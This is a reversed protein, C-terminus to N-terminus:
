INIETGPPLRLIERFLIYLSNKSQIPNIYFSSSTGANGDVGFMQLWNEVADPNSNYEEVSVHTVNTGNGTMEFITIGSGSNRFYNMIGKISDAGSPDAWFVPNGDFANYPSMNYHTIPDIGMWRAI